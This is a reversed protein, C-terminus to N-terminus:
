ALADLVVLKSIHFAAVREASCAPPEHAGALCPGEEKWLITICALWALVGVDLRVLNALVGEVATVKATERM